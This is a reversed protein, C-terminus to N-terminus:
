LSKCLWFIFSLKKTKQRICYKGHYSYNGHYWGHRRSCCNPERHVSEKHKKVSHRHMAKYSCLNCAYKIEDHRSENHRKLNYKRVTEYECRNCTFISSHGQHNVTVHERLTRESTVSYNCHACNYKFELHVTKEHRKLNGKTTLSQNCIKCSFIRDQTSM